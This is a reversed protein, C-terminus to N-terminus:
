RLPPSAVRLRFRLGPRSARCLDTSALGLHNAAGSAPDHGMDDRVLGVFLCIGGINTRGASFRELEAGSDFDERQVRIAM